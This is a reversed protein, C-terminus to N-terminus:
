SGSEGARCDRLLLDFTMGKRISFQNESIVICANDTSFLHSKASWEVSKTKIVRGQNNRFVVNGALLFTNGKFSGRDARISYVLDQGEFFYIEIGSIELKAVKFTRDQLGSPIANKLSAMILDLDGVEEGPAGKKGGKSSIHSKPEEKRSLGILEGAGLGNHVTSPFHINLCVNNVLIERWDLLGTTFFGFRKKRMLLSDAVFRVKGGGEMYESYDLGTMKFDNSPVPIPSPQISPTGSDYSLLRISIVVALLALLPAVARLLFTPNLRERVKVFNGYSEM